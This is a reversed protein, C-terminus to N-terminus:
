VVKLRNGMLMHPCLPHAKDQVRVAISQLPFEDEEGFITNLRWPSLADAVGEYYHYHIGQLSVFKKGRAVLKAALEEKRLHYELPFIKLQDLAVYGEYPYISFCMTEYGFGTGDFSIENARISWRRQWCFPNPCECRAISVLKLVRDIGDKQTYVHTGPRFAMWLSSFDLSPPVGKLEMLNYWRETEQALTQYMHELLFILHEAHTENELSSGYAQLEKRYHFICKPPSDMTVVKSHFEVGPYRVIVQQLAKKVYPSRIGLQTKELDHSRDYFRTLSFAYADDVSRDLGNPRIGAELTIREGKSNYRVEHTKMECRRGTTEKKGADNSRPKPIGLSAFQDYAPAAESGDALSAM